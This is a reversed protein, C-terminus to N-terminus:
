LWTGIGRSLAERRFGCPTDCFVPLRPGLKLLGWVRFLADLLGPYFAQYTKSVPNRQIYCDRIRGRGPMLDLRIPQTVKPYPTNRAPKNKLIIM